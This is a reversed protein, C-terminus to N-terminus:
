PHVGQSNKRRAVKRRGGTADLRATAAAAFRGKLRLLPFAISAMTALDRSAAASALWQLHVAMSM